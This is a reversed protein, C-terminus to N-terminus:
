NCSALTMASRSSCDCKVQPGRMMMRGGEFGFEYGVISQTRSSSSKILLPPCKISLVGSVVSLMIIVLLSEFQVYCDYKKRLIKTLKIM